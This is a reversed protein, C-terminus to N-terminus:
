GKNPRDPILKILEQIGALVEEDKPPIEEPHGLRNRVDSIPPVKGKPYRTELWEDILHQPRGTNSAGCEENECKLGSRCVRCRYPVAEFTSHLKQYLELFYTSSAVHFILYNAEASSPYDLLPSTKIQNIETAGTKLNRSVEYIENQNGFKVFFPDHTTVLVKSGAETIKGLAKYLSEKWRPHLCMEPEEFILVVKEKKGLEAESYYRVLAAMILRAAGTGIEDLSVIDAETPYADKAIAVALKHITEENIDDLNVDFETDEVGYEKLIKNVGKVMETKSDRFEKKLDDMMKTNFIPSLLKSMASRFPDSKASNKIELDPRVRDATIYIPEFGEFGKPKTKGGLKKNIYKVIKTKGSNNEGALVTYDGLEIELPALISSNDPDAPITLKM